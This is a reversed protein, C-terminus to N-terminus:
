SCSSFLRRLRQTASRVSSLCIRVSTMRFFIQPWNAAQLDSVPDMLPELHAGSARASQGLHLSRRPVVAALCSILRGQAHADAVDGVRSWPEM